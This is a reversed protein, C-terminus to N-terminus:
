QIELLLGRFIARGKITSSGTAGTTVGFTLTQEGEETLLGDYRQRKHLTATLATTQVAALLKDPTGTIGARVFPQATVTGGLTTLILDMGDPFFKAGTPITILFEAITKLDVEETAITVVSASYALQNDLAAEYKRTIVTGQVQTTKPIRARSNKGISNAYQASTNANDGVAVAGEQTAQSVGGLATSYDGTANGGNGGVMTARQGTAQAAGGVAVSNADASAALGLATGNDGTVTATDGIALGGDNQSDAGNGFAISNLGAAGVADVTKISGAGGAGEEFLTDIVVIGGSPNTVTSGKGSQIDLETQSSNNVNNTELDISPPIVVAAWKIGTAEASDATLIHGNTGVPLRADGSADRTFLDGKTTLPVISDRLQAKTAKKNKNAVVGESIDIMEFLDGVAIPDTQATLDTIKKDAM